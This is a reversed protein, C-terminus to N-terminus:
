FNFEISFNFLLIKDFRIESPIEKKPNKGNIGFCNLPIPIRKKPRKEKTCKKKV